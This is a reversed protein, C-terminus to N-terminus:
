SVPRDTDVISFQGLVQSNGHEINIAVVKMAEEATMIRQDQLAVIKGVMNAAIALLEIKSVDPHKSILAILDQYAAEHEPKALHKGM